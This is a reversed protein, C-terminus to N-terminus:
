GDIDWFQPGRWSNISTVVIRDNNNPDISVGSYAGYHVSELSDLDLLYNEPSIDTWSEQETDYKYVAGRSYYDNVGDWQQAHPGAGAGFTVYLSAGDETLAMRQPMLNAESGPSPLPPLSSWSEGGNDSVYLNEGSRSVAAYIRQTVGNSVENSDFLVIPIGNGNATETVDLSSVRQWTNGRDTSKFLGDFRTGTFIIESNNPDVALREGNGRGMGNGHAKFQDTVWIVDWTDGYDDSRLFASKGDNWYSTGALMYVRGTVQPDVAIGDIGLLGREQESVWDMLSVWRQGSEDWRYAGGVDTRVYFVNEDNPDSIVGSVFGGGGIEVNGWEYSVQANLSLSFLITLMFFCVCSRKM